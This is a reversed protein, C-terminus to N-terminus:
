TRKRPRRRALALAAATILGAIASPDGAGVQCGGGHASAATAGTATDGASTAGGADSSSSPLPAAAAGGGNGPFSAAGACVEQM